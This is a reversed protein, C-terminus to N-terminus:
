PYVLVAQMRRINAGPFRGTAKVAALLRNAEASTTGAYVAIFGVKANVNTYTINEEPNDDCGFRTAFVKHGPWLAQTATREAETVSCAPVTKLIVAYFPESRYETRAIEDKPTEFSLEHPKFGPYPKAPDAHVKGQALAGGSFGLVVVMALSLPIAIRHNPPIPLEGTQRDPAPLTKGM